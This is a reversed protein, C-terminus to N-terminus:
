RRRANAAGSTSLKNISPNGKYNLSSAGSIDGNISKLTTVKASSAGSLDITLNDISFSYDDFHSAGSLEIDAVDATGSLNISAAGSLEITAKEVDVEGKFSAAGDSEVIIKPDKLSNNLTISSAGSTMFHNLKSTKIHIQVAGKTSISKNKEYQVYLTGSSVSTEIYQHINSPAEVTISEETSYTVDVEFASAVEIKTFDGVSRTETTFNKTGVISTSGGWNSMSYAAIAIAVLAALVPIKKM